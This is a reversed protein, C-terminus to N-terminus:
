GLLVVFTAFAGSFFSLMLGLLPLLRPERRMGYFLCVFLATFTLLMSLGMLIVILWSIGDSASLQAARGTVSLYRVLAIWAIHGTLQLLSLVFGILGPRNDRLLRRILEAPTEQGIDPVPRDRSPRAPRSSAQKRHHHRVRKGM